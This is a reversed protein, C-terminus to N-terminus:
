RAFPAHASRSPAIWLSEHAADLVLDCRRLVDGGLVSMRRDGLTGDFIRAPVDTFTRDGFRLAPLRVTRTKVANGYSDRLEDERITTLRDALANAQVFQEDLLVTGGFGTHLLFSTTCRREGVAVEGDVFLLGDHVALPIRRWRDDLPPLSPHVVLQLADFDVEVVKDGFLSPGFKGDTHEGSNEDETIGVSRWVLDGIQLTNGGSHRANTTGGWSQVAISGDVDFRSLRAIAARTLSVSDVATHFMLDLADAGNLTARIVITNGPGLTFPIRVAAAPAAHEASAAATCGALAFLFM